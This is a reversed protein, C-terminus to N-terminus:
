PRYDARRDHPAPDMLSPNKGDLGMLVRTVIHLVRGVVRGITDFITHM